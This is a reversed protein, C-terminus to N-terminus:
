APRIQPLRAQPVPVPRGIATLMLSAWYYANRTIDDAQDLFERQAQALALDAPLGRAVNRHFAAILGPMVDDDAPWIPAMVNRCRAEIFAAGLGFLEDGPQEPRGRGGIARQGAYCATLVVVECGLNSAAIEYGDVSDDALELVSELPADKAVEDTLSHGHTAMVLCWAGTLTGDRLAGLVEARRPEAMLTAPIGAASYAATVDSAETRVERLEGLDPRGPFESVALAIMRRAGPTSRPVLLSTLNPAYRLAFSRVLPAGQYPLAVFPYWHLMRHPSVILRRKGDLLPQGEGPALRTGLPEIYEADLDLNSGKMSGLEGILKELLATHEPEFRRREVAVADANITVVLLTNARLWYYYLVAEDPDLAQQLGALTVPPVTADPDRMSIARRDWLQLRQERLPLQAERAQERREKQAEEPTGSEIVPDLAHIANNAATLEEDLLLAGSSRTLFLGRVSARAKSLEMRQLMTDYASKDPATGDIAMQWAAFVGIAFVDEHPALLAAQQFPASVRYRDREILDIVRGAAESAEKIKERGLQVKAVSTMALIAQDTALKGGVGCVAQYEEEFLAVAADLDNAAIKVRGGAELAQALTVPQGLARARSICDDAMQQWRAITEPDAQAAHETLDVLQNVLAMVAMFEPGPAFDLSLDPRSAPSAGPQPGERPEPSAPTPEVAEAGPPRSQALQAELRDEVAEIHASMELTIAAFRNLDAEASSASEPTLAMRLAALRSHLTLLTSFLRLFHTPDEADGPPIKGIWGEVARDSGAPGPIPYGAEALEAIADGLRHSAEFDDSNGSAVEALGVLVTARELSGLRATDLGALLQELRTDADPVQRQRAADRRVIAASAMNQEGADTYMEAAAGFHVEAEAEHGSAEKARALGDLVRGIKFRLLRRGAGSVPVRAAVAQYDRVAAALDAVDKETARDAFAARVADEIRADIPACAQTSELDQETLQAPKPGAENLAASGAARLALLRERCPLWREGLADGEVQGTPGGTLQVARNYFARLDIYSLKDLEARLAEGSADGGPGVYRDILTQARVVAALPHEAEFRQEFLEWM